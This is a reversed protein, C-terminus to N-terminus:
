AAPNTEHKPPDGVFHRPETRLISTHPAKPAERLWCLAAYRMHNVYQRMDKDAWAPLPAHTDSLAFRAVEKAEESAADWVGILWRHERTQPTQFVEVQRGSLLEGLGPPPLAWGTLEAVRIIQEYSPSHLGNEWGSVNAKTKGMVEGLQTQTLKAHQRCQRIWTGIDMSDNYLCDKRQHSINVQSKTNLTEISNPM